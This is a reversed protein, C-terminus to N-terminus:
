VGVVPIKVATKASQLIRYRIVDWIHDEGSTDIDEPHKEDNELNPV